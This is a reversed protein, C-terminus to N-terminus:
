VSGKAKKRFIMSNYSFRKGNRNIKCLAARANQKTHLFCMDPKTVIKGAKGGTEARMCDIKPKMKRLEFACLRPFRRTKACDARFVFRLILLIGFVGRILGFVARNEATGARGNAPCHLIGDTLIGPGDPIHAFPISLACVARRYDLWLFCLRHLHVPRPGGRRGM